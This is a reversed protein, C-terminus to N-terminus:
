LDIIDMYPSDPHGVEDKLVESTFGLSAWEEGILATDGTPTLSCRWVKLERQGGAPNDSVFRLFGEIQTEKFARVVTYTYGLCGYTVKVSQGDTITSGKFRIRGIQDDKLTVDVEYDTGAVYVPTGSTHAVKLVGPVFVPAANTTATASSTGGTIVEAAGFTGATAVQLYGVGVTVVVGTAASTGGTVTEGVVFPGGTVAGHALTTVGVKRNALQSMRGPHAVVVEDVVSAAIQVVTAKEGLTLLSLNEANIEDLTFALSPTIQSIIEKDKAKLGGRSSFHELKEIAVTFSFAPANGLDREGLYLGSTTDKKNFSVIGKGLTFNDTSPSDAM